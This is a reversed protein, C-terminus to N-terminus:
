KEVLHPMKQHDFLAEEKSIFNSFWKGSDKIIRKQSDFDVYVLGFRPRYGEAWEFNDMLTWVFYGRVDIGENKARLVQEIHTQLYATRRADKVEDGGLWQDPFAAGNETVILPKDPQYKSFQMLMKYISEPYVEWEMETHPVGRKKANILRAKLYPVYWCAEVIERTYNQVGIFDLNVKLNKEDDAKMLKEVPRLVKLDELPFGLGCAPEIFLRNLLADAKQAAKLDAESNTKPQIFSCSYTSGINIEAQHSRLVREGVGTSLAAHLMAPIFNSFGRRGPAHYGLFHGAGTFVMPENLVMWNHIGRNGMQIGVVDVYNEFWNLVERKTWGGQNELVQPLDWHYLTPWPQIEEELLRECLRKYFDLGKHNITGTGGPLIRSWSLSFRFNKIGLTKLLQIDEEWKHYFNCAIKPNHGKYIKGRRASFTDWVSPSKGDENWGGETQLAATSVGWLFEPGFDRTSVSLSKNETL